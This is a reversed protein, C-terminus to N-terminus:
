GARVVSLADYVRFALCRLDFYRLCDDVGKTMVRPRIAEMELYEGGVALINEKRGSVLSTLGM